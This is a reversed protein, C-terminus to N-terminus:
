EVLGCWVSGCGWTSIHLNQTSQLKTFLVHQIKLNYSITKNQKCTVYPTPLHHPPPVQKKSNVDQIVCNLRNWSAWPISQIVSPPVVQSLLFLIAKQLKTKEKGKMTGFEYRVTINSGLYLGFRSKLTGNCRSRLCWRTVHQHHVQWHILWNNQHQAWTTIHAEKAPNSM